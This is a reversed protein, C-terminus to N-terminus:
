INLANASSHNIHSLFFGSFRERIQTLTQSSEHTAVIFKYLHQKALPHSVGAYM